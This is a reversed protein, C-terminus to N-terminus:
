SRVKYYIFFLLYLSLFYAIFIPQIYFIYDPSPYESILNLFFNDAKPLENVYFYNAHVGM